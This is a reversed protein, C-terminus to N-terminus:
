NWCPRHSTPLVDARRLSRATWTRNSLSSRYTTYRTRPTHVARSRDIMQECNGHDATVVLSGGKALTADVIRGVCHDVKEVAAIAAELVGTHGVMDGNAFNVVILDAEGSAIEALVKETVGEASMEPKQNTPRVDRPSPVLGWSEGPFPDERYDNFFFTM